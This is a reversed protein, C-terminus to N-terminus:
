VCSSLTLHLSGRSVVCVMIEQRILCSERRSVKNLQTNKILCSESRTVVHHGVSDQRISFVCSFLTLLLSDQRVLCPSFFFDNRYGSLMHLRVAHPGSIQLKYQNSTELMCPVAVHLAAEQKKQDPRDVSAAGPLM